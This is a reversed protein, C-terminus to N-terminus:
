RYIMVIGSLWRDPFKGFPRIRSSAHFRNFFRQVLNPLLPDPEDSYLVVSQKEYSDCESSTVYDDPLVVILDGARPETSNHCVYGLYVVCRGDTQSHTLYFSVSRVGPRADDAGEISVGIFDLYSAFSALNANNVTFPFLIRQHTQQNQLFRDRITRAIEAREHVMNKREYLHYSTLSLTQVLIVFLISAVALRLPPKLSQWALIAYRGLYLVAVLDAPAMYYASFMRLFIFTAAYGVAGFALPDFLLDARMNGRLINYARWSFFGAFAWILLDLHLYNHIIRLRPEAISDRYGSAFQPFMYASFVILFLFSLALFLLDLRVIKSTPVTWSWGSETKCHLLLRAAAFGALIVFGPEKYYLLFQACIVAAVAWRTSLSSDFRQVCFLLLLLWFIVNWEAYILGGFSITIAPTLLAFAALLMRHVPKLQNDLFLLVAAVIPLQVIRILQYGAFSATVHRVLNFEQDALPFFRGIGPSIHLGIDRGRLTNLTFHVNDFYTFDEWFVSVLAYCVLFISFSLLSITFVSHPQPLRGSESTGAHELTGPLRASNMLAAAAGAGLITIVLWIPWFYATPLTLCATLPGTSILM